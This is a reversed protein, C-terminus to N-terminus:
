PAYAVASFWESTQPKIFEAHGDSWIMNEGSDHWTFERVPEGTSAYVYYLDCFLPALAKLKAPGSSWVRQFNYISDATSVGAAALSKGKESWEFNFSQYTWMGTLNGWGDKLEWSDQISYRKFQQNRKSGPCFYVEYNELYAPTLLDLFAPRTRSVWRNSNTPDDLWLQWTSYYKIEIGNFRSFPDSPAVNFNSPWKESNGNSYTLLGVGLQKFNSLCVTKQAQEKAKTLSPLLISLLLAIISIVVLLEILTFAGSKTKGILYM